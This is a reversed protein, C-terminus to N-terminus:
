RGEELRCALEPPLGAERIAAAAAAVDYEVREFAVRRADLDVVAYGARRDGDRPQGVSGPNVLVVRAGRPWECESASWVEQVGSERLWGCMPVHTHGCFAVDPYGRALVARLNAELMTSTVYGTVHADNLFCGHIAVFRRDLHRSPLSRLYERQEANLRNRTWEASIRASSRTGLGVGGRSVDWDHNGAVVVGCRDRVLAVCEGPHANYGVLDGLCVCVDHPVSEVASLVAQLAFINSHVDAM